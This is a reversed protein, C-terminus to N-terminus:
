AILAPNRRASMPQTMAYSEAILAVAERLEEPELTYPLRIFRDLQSDPSFRSGAMLLVGNREAVGVLASGVPAPLECWLSLGGSPVRFRWDPLQEAV